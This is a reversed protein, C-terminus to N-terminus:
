RSVPSRGIRSNGADPNRDADLYFRGSDSNFFRRSMIVKGEYENRGWSYSVADRAFEEDAGIDVWTREATKRDPNTKIPVGDEDYSGDCTREAYGNAPWLKPKREGGKVEKIIGNEIVLLEPRNILLVRKYGEPAPKSKDGNDFDVVTELINGHGIRDFKHSLYERQPETLGIAGRRSLLYINFLAVEGGLTLSGEKFLDEFTKGYGETESVTGEFSLPKLDRPKLTQEEFGYTKVTKREEHGLPLESMNFYVGSNETSM